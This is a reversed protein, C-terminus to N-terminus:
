IENKGELLKLLYDRIEEFSSSDDYNSYEFKKDYRPSKDKDWGKLHINIELTNIHGCYNIFVTPKDKTLERKRKETDENSSNIKLALEILEMVKEIKM